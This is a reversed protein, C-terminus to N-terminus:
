KFEYWINHELNFKGANMCEKLFAEMNVFSKQVKGRRNVQLIQEDKSIVFFCQWELSDAFIFWDEPNRKRAYMQQMSEIPFPQYGEEEISMGRYSEVYGAIRVLDFLYCGNFYTLFTRYASPAPRDLKKMLQDVRESSLPPQLHTHWREEEQIIGFLITGTRLKKKNNQYFADLLNPIDKYIM